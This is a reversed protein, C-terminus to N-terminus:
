KSLAGRHDKVFQGFSIAPRGLLRPVADSQRGYVNSSCCVDSVLRQEIELFKKLFKKAM